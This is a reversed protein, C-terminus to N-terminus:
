WSIERALCEAQSIRYGTAFLVAMFQCLYSTLLICYIEQTTYHSILFLHRCIYFLINRYNSAAFLCFNLFFAGFYQVISSSSATVFVELGVHVDM